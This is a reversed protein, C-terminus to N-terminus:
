RLRPRRGAGAILSELSLWPLDARHPDRTGVIALVEDRSLMPERRAPDSLTEVDCAVIDIGLPEPISAKLLASLNAAAG